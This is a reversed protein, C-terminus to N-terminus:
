GGGVPPFLSVEDGDALSTAADGHVGNVLILGAASRDLGLEDCLAGVTAARVLPVRQETAGDRTRHELGAFLHVTVLASVESTPCDDPENKQRSTVM